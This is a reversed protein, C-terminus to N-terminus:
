DNGGEQAKLASDHAFSRAKADLKACQSQSQASACQTTSEVALAFRLVLTHALKAKSAHSGHTGTPVFATPHFRSIAAHASCKIIRGQPRPCLHGLCMEPDNCICVICGCPQQRALVAEGKAREIVREVMNPDADLFSRTTQGELTAAYQRAIITLYMALGEGLKRAEEIAKDLPLLKAQDSM